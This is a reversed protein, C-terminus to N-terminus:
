VNRRSHKITLSRVSIHNKLQFMVALANNQYHVRYDQIPFENSDQM